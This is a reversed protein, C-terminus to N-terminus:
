NFLYCRFVVVWNAPTLGVEASTTKNVVQYATKNTIGVKTANAYVMTMTNTGGGTQLQGIPLPIEDNVAFNFEATKCRLVAYTLDPVEGLGHSVEINSGIAIPTEASIFKKIGSILSNKGVWKSINPNYVFTISSNTSDIVLDSGTPTVINGSNKVTIVRANNALYFTVEYGPSIATGSTGVYINELDDSAAASETDLIVNGRTVFATGSAISIPQPPIAIAKNSGSQTYYYTGDSFLRIGESYGLTLTTSGDITATSTITLSGQGKNEIDCFWGSPFLSGSPAPLTASINATNSFSVLKGWDTNLFTYSTGTQTNTPVKPYLVGNIVTFLSSLSFDISQGTKYDNVDFIEVGSEYTARVRYNFNDQLYVCSVTTGADTTLYGANNFRLPQAIPNTRALDSYVNAANNTGSEYFYMYGNEAPINEDDAYRTVPFTYIPATM